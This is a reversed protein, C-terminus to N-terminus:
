IMRLNIREPMTSTITGAFPAPKPVVEVVNRSIQKQANRSMQQSAVRAHHQRKWLFTMRALLSLQNILAILPVLLPTEM